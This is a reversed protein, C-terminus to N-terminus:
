QTDPYSNSNKKAKERYNPRVGNKSQNQNGDFNKRIGMGSSMDFETKISSHFKTQVLIRHSFGVKTLINSSITYLSPLNRISLYPSFPSKLIPLFESSRFSEFLHPPTIVIILLPLWWFLFDLFNPVIDWNPNVGGESRQSMKSNWVNKIKVGGRLQRFSSSALAFEM